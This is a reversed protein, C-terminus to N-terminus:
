RGERRATTAAHARKMRVRRIRRENADVIQLHIGDYDLNEGTRPVRGLISTILGGVTDVDEAVVHFGVARSVEHVDALGSVLWVGKEEEVLDAESHDHEDEIEGVIEEVLDEITVLGATGGYEDVVIAFQSRARQMDRLLDKVKKTEPVFMVPRVHDRVSMTGPESWIPLLDKLNLVGEIQDISDGMVPIRSHKASIFRERVEELLASRHLVVMEMRPRMIERVITDGFDVVNRVLDGEDAELIGEEEGMSVFAHVEQEIDDDTRRAPMGQFRSSVSKMLRDLPLVVPLLAIATVSAVPAGVAVARRPSLAVVLRALFMRVFLILVAGSGAFALGLRLPAALDPWLRNVLDASLLATFILIAQFAIQVGLLLHEREKRRSWRRLFRASLGAEEFVTDIRLRSLELHATRFLALLFYVAVLVVLALGEWGAASLASRM